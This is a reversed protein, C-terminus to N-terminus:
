TFSDVRNVWGSRFKRQSQKESLDVLFQRRESKLKEILISPDLANTVKTTIAGIIGDQRTGVAYQLKKSARVVGSHVAYDYIFNAINQHEIFDGNVKTWFEKYYFQKVLSEIEFDKIKENWKLPKYKDVIDWGTWKPHYKRSIGAYTEGGADGAVDAFGGEWQSTKNYATLFEAM